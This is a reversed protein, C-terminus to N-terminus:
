THLNEYADPAVGAPPLNEAGMNLKQHILAKSYPMEMGLFFFHVNFFAAVIKHHFIHCGVREKMKLESQFVDWEGHRM